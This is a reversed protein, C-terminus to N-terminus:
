CFGNTAHFTMSPKKTQKTSRYSRCFRSPTVRWSTHCNFCKYHTMTAQQLCKTTCSPCISRRYLWDRYTDICDQIHDEDIEIAYQMGLERAQDWAAIELTLLEFDAKYSTHELIAHGTEHLLSWAATLPDQATNYLIEQKQPSWCFTPGATFRLHPFQLALSKVITDM